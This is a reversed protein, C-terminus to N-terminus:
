CQLTHLRLFISIYKGKLAINSYRNEVEHKVADIKETGNKAKGNVQPVVELIYMANIFRLIHDFEMLMNHPHTLRFLDGFKIDGKTKYMTKIKSGSQRIIMDKDFVIHFPFIDCFDKHSVLSSRTDTVDNELIKKADNIIDLENITLNLYVKFVVHEVLRNNPDMQNIHLM